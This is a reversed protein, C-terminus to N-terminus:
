PRQEKKIATLLEHGFPGCPCDDDHYAVGHLQVPQEMCICDEEDESPKFHICPGGCLACRRPWSM